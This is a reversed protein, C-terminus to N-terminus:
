PGGQTYSTYKLAEGALYIKQFHILLHLPAQTDTCNIRLHFCTHAGASCTAPGNDWGVSAAAQPAAAASDGVLLSAQFHRVAAVQLLAMLALLAEKETNARRGVRLLARLVTEAM